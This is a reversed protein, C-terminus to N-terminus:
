LIRGYSAQTRRLLTQAGRALQEHNVVNNDYRLEYHYPEGSNVFVVDYSGAMLVHKRDGAFLQALANIINLARSKGTANKGVLLNVKGLDFREIYWEHPTGVLESYTISALRM